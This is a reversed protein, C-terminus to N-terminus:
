KLEKPYEVKGRTKWLRYLASASFGAFVFELTVVSWDIGWLGAAILLVGTLMGTHFLAEGVRSKIKGLAMPVYACLLIVSGITSIM